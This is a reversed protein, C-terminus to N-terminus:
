LESELTMAGADHPLPPTSPATSAVGGLGSSLLHAPVELMECNLDSVVLSQLRVGRDGGFHGGTQVLAWPGSVWLSARLALGLSRWGSFRAM